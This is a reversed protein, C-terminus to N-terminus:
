YNLKLFIGFVEIENIGWLNNSINDQCGNKAALHAVRQFSMVIRLYRHM